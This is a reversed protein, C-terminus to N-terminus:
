YPPEKWEMAETVGSALKNQQDFVFRALLTAKAFELRYRYSRQGSAHSRDVLIMSVFSGLRKTEAQIEKQRPLLKKWAEATYDDARTTGEILDQVMARLHATVKPEKDRIPKFEDMRPDPLPGISQRQLYLTHNPFDLTVLHRALFRIGIADSEFDQEPLSVLPYKEGGFMGNPWRAEGNTGLVAENTWQRFYKPMLWGDSNYGSDILSHPGRVGFLNEAVAPRADEANLAVIPFAKGWMQKDVRDGDLFRMKGAAFDLQICYHELVDMGLIGMVPPGLLASMRKLDCAAIITGTMMLPAGGLYLKPSVDYYNNTSKVGALEGVTTGLPKGLKPELSKDFFTCSAGTDIIFPLKQGNELRLTVILLGGRGADKNISVEAPLSRHISQETACSCLFILSLFIRVTCFLFSTKM